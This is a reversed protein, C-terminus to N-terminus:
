VIEHKVNRLPMHFDARIGVFHDVMVPEYEEEWKKNWNINEITTMTYAMIAFKELVRQFEEQDFEPEAIFALLTDEEEVFGDFGQASLLAILKEAEQQDHPEFEFQLYNM